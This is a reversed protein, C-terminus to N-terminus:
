EKYWNTEIFRAFRDWKAYNDAPGTMYFVDMNSGRIEEALNPRVELLLNFCAQGWRWKRKRADQLSDFYFQSLTVNKPDPYRCQAHSERMQMEILQQIMLDVGKSKSKM